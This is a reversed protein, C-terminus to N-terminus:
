DWTPSNKQNFLEEEHRMRIQAEMEVKERLKNNILKLMDSTEILTELDTIDHLSVTIGSFKKSVDLMKKLRLEFVRETENVTLRVIKQMNESNENIFDTIVKRIVRPIEINQCGYYMAGSSQEPAFLRLASDNINQLMGKYDVYMVPIFLSDFITLYKNKENTININTKALENIKAQEQTNSWEQVFSLEIINFAKIIFLEALKRNEINNSFDKLIELYVLSYYKFLGLFLGLDVGRERHKKAEIIGFDAISNKECRKDAIIEPFTGYKKLYCCLSDTIGEVSVRWAEILTSTYKSYGLNIAHALVGHMIEDTRSNLFVILDNRFLKPLKDTYM